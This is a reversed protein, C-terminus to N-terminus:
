WRGVSLAAGHDALTVECAIPVRQGGAGWGCSSGEPGVSTTLTGGEGNDMRGCLLGGHREPAAWRSYGSVAVIYRGLRKRGGRQAVVGRWWGDICSSSIRGPPLPLCRQGVGVPVDSCPLRTHPLHSDYGGHATAPTSPSGGVGGWVYRWRPQNPVGAAVMRVTSRRAHPREGRRLACAGHRLLQASMNSTQHVHLSRLGCVYGGLPPPCCRDGDGDHWRSWRYGRQGARGGGEREVM